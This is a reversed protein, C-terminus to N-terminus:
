ILILQMFVTEAYDCIHIVMSVHKTIYFKRGDIYDDIHVM